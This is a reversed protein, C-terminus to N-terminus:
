VVCCTEKLMWVWMSAILEFFKKTLGPGGLQMEKM